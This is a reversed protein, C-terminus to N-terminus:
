RPERSLLMEKRLFVERRTDQNKVVLRVEEVKEDSILQRLQFITDGNFPRENCAMIEEGVKIGAKDSPGRTWLGEVIIANNEGTGLNLGLSFLDKV